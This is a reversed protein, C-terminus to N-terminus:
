EWSSCTQCLLSWEKNCHNWQTEIQKGQKNQGLKGIRNGIVCKKLKMTVLLETHKTTCHGLCLRWVLTTINQMRMVSWDVCVRSLDLSYIFAPSIYLTHRCDMIIIDQTRTSVTNKEWDLPASFCWQLDLPVQDLLQSDENWTSWSFPSNLKYIYYVRYIEYNICITWATKSHIHNNEKSLWLM